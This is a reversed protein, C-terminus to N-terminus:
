KRTDMMIAASEPRLANRSVKALFYETIGVERRPRNGWQPNQNAPWVRHRVM